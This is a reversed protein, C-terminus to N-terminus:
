LDVVQISLNRTDLMDLRKYLTRSILLEKDATYLLAQSVGMNHAIQRWHTKGAALLATAAADATSPDPHVVTVAVTHAVPTGTIPDLIHQIRRNQATYFRQYDGSTFISEQGQSQLSAMPDPKRPHQIGITWARKGKTGMATLDGGANILANHIGLAHLTQMALDIAYGKAIGGSDFQIDPHTGRMRIGDHEIDQMTPIDQQLRKIFAMDPEFPQQPDNRHFGWAAVLKGIAPNFYHNSQIALQRSKQLLPLLSTSATFWNGTQLLQNTRKLANDRWPHWIEHMKQFDEDLQRFADQARKHDADIISVDITTGFAFLTQQHIQERGCGALLLFLFPYLFLQLPFVPKHKM